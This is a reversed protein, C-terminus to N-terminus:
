KEVGESTDPVYGVDGDGDGDMIRETVFDIVEVSPKKYEKM